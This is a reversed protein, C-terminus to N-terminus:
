SAAFPKQCFGLHRGKFFFIGLVGDGFSYRDNLSIKKVGIPKQQVIGKFTELSLRALHAKALLPITTTFIILPVYRKVKFIYLM